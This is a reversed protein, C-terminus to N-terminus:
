CLLQFFYCYLWLLISNKAHCREIPVMALTTRNGHALSWTIHFNQTQMYVRMPWLTYMWFKIWHHVCLFMFSSSYSSPYSSFSFFVWAAPGNSSHSNLTGKQYGSHCPFNFGCLAVKCVWQRWPRYHERREWSFFCIPIAWGLLYWQRLPEPWPPRTANPSLSLALTFLLTAPSSGLCVESLTDGETLFFSLTGGSGNSLLGSVLGILKLCSEDLLCTRKRGYQHQPLM